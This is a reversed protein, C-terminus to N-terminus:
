NDVPVISGSFDEEYDLSAQRDSFTFSRSSRRLVQGSDHDQLVLILWYPKSDWKGGDNKIFQVDLALVPQGDPQVLVAGSATSITEIMDERDFIGLEYHYDGYEGPIGTIRVHRIMEKIAGEVADKVIADIDCTTLSLSALIILSLLFVPSRKKKM